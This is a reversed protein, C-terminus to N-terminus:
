TLTESICFGSVFASGQRAFLTPFDFLFSLMPLVWGDTGSAGGCRLVQITPEYACKLPHTAEDTEV